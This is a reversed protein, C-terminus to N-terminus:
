PNLGNKAFMTYTSTVSNVFGLFVLSGWVFAVLPPRHAKGTIKRLDALKKVQESVDKEKESDEGGNEVDLAPSSPQYSNFYLTMKLRTQKGGAFNLVPSDSNQRQMHTYDAGEILSYEAPNFQVPILSLKDLNIIVANPGVFMSIAKAALSQVMALSM